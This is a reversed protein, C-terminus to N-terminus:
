QKKNRGHITVTEKLFTTINLFFSSPMSFMSIKGLRQWITPVSQGMKIGIPQFSKPVSNLKRDSNSVINYFEQAQPITVYSRTKPMYM